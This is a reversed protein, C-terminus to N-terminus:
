LGPYLSIPTRQTASTHRWRAATLVFLFSAKIERVRRQGPLVPLVLRPPLSICATYARHAPSSTCLAVTTAHTSIVCASPDTLSCTRLTLVMVASRAANLPHNRSCSTSHTARSLVPTKQHGTNLRSSSCPCWTTRTLAACMFAIGPWLVSMASLRQSASRSRWPKSRGLKMGGAAM